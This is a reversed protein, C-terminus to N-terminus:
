PKGQNDSTPPDSEILQLRFLQSTRLLLIRREDPSFVVNTSAALLLVVLGGAIVYATPALLLTTAALLLLTGRDPLLRSRYALVLSAFLAVGVGSVGAWATMVLAQQSSGSRIGVVAVLFAAACGAAWCVFTCVTKKILTFRITVLSLAGALLYFVLLLDVAQAGDRYADDFALVSVHKLSALLLCLLLAALLVARTALQLRAVAVERGSIEWISNVSSAVAVSVAAPLIYGLQTVITMARYTAFVEEGCMRNLYLAPLSMMLQWSFAAWGAWLGFALLDRMGSPRDSVVPEQKERCVLWLAAAGFVLATVLNAATYIALVATGSGGGLAAVAVAGGTFLLGATLEMVSLARFMRRGRLVGVVVHYLVLVVVCIATLRILEAHAAASVVTIAGGVVHAVPGALLFLVGCLGAGVILSLPLARRLYPWLRGNSEHEPVFRAVAEYSGFEAPSIMWWTLLVGRGIGAARLLANASLYLRISESLPAPTFLGLFRNVMPASNPSDDADPFSSPTLLSKGFAHWIVV